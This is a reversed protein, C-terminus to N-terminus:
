DREITMVQDPELHNRGKITVTFKAPQAVHVVAPPAQPVNVNVTPQLARIAQILPTLDQAKLAQMAEVADAVAAQIGALGRAGTAKDVAEAIDVLATEIRKIRADLETM